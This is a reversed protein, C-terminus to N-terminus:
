HKDISSTYYLSSKTATVSIDSDNSFVEFDRETEYRMGGVEKGECNKGSYGLVECSSIFNKCVSRLKLESITKIEGEHIENFYCSGNVNVSMMSKTQNGISLPHASAINALTLLFISVLFRMGLKNM